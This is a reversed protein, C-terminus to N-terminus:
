DTVNSLDMVIIFDYIRLLKPENGSLSTKRRENINFICGNAGYSINVNPM